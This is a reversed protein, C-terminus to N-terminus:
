ACRVNEPNPAGQPYMAVLGRYHSPGSQAFINILDSQHSDQSWKSSIQFEQQAPTRELLPPRNALNSLAFLVRGSMRGPALDQGPLIKQAPDKIIEARLGFFGKSVNVGIQRYGRDLGFNSVKLALM